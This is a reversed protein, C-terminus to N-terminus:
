ILICEKDFLNLHEILKNYNNPNNHDMKIIAKDCKNVLDCNHYLTNHVYKKQRKVIILKISNSYAWKMIYKNETGLIIHTVDVDSFYKDIIKKIDLNENNSTRVLLRINKKLGNFSMKCHPCINIKDIYNAWWNSLCKECCKYICNICKISNDELCIDCM